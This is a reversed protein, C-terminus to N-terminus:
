KGALKKARKIAAKVGKKARLSRVEAKARPKLHRPYGIYKGHLKLGKLRAPSLKLKPRPRARPGPEGGEYRALLLEVLRALSRDLAHLSHRVAALEKGISGKM